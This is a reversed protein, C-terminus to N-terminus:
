QEQKKELFLTSQILDNIIMILLIHAFEVFVVSRAPVPASIIKAPGFEPAPVPSKAASIRASWCHMFGYAGFTALFAFNRESWGFAPGDIATFAKSFLFVAIEVPRRKAVFL